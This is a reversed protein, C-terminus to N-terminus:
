EDLRSCSKMQRSLPHKSRQNSLCLLAIGLFTSPAVEIVKAEAITVIVTHVVALVWLFNVLVVWHLVRTFILLHFVLGKCAIAFAILIQEPNSVVVAVLVLVTFAIICQLLSQM